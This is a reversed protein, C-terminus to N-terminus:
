VSLRVILDIEHVAGALRATAVGGPLRREARDGSAIELPDPFTVTPAPELALVPGSQPDTPQATLSTLFDLARTRFPSIGARTFPNKGVILLQNELENRLGAVIFDIARVNDIWEKPGGSVRGRQWIFDLNSGFAGFWNVEKSPSELTTIETGNLRDYQEVARTGKYAWTARGPDFQAIVSATWGIVYYDSIRGDTWALFTRDRALTVLQSAVDGTDVADIVGSEYADSALLKIRPETFAAAALVEAESQSDLVLFYWDSDEAEIAALDTAVGPDPTADVVDLVDLPFVYRAIEGANDADIDFDTVNNTATVPEGSAIISLILGDIILAVTDASQEIYSITSANITFTWDFPDGQPGTPLVNLSQTPPLDRRGVKIKEPAPNQSYAVVLARNIAPAAVATFGQDVADQLSTTTAVRQGVTVTHAGAVLIQDFTPAAPTATTLTATVQVPQDPM